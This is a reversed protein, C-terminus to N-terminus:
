PATGAGHVADLEATTRDSLTRRLRELREEVLDLLGPGDLDPRAEGARDIAREYLADLALPDAGLLQGAAREGMARVFRDGAYRDTV